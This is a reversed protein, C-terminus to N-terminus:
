WLWGRPIRADLYARQGKFNRNLRLKEAGGNKTSEKSAEAFIRAFKIFENTNMFYLARTEIDAFIFGDATAYEARINDINLGRCLTARNSKIQYAKGSIVIDAGGRKNDAKPNEGYEARIDAQINAGANHPYLNLSAKKLIIKEM